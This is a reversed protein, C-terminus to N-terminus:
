GNEDIKTEKGHKLIKRDIDAVTIGRLSKKCHEDLQRYINQMIEGMGSSILCERDADGSRWPSGVFEAGIAAAIQELTLKDADATFVYGGSNGGKTDVFGAKKLKSMVRRILVPNTCVNRALEESSLVRDMHNLYVLAHVAISFSSNTIDGGVGRKRTQQLM